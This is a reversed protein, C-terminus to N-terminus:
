LKVGYRRLGRSSVIRLVRDFVFGLIGLTIIGVFVWSLERM